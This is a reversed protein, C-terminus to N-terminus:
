NYQGYLQQLLQMLANQNTGQSQESDQPPPPPPPMRNEGDIGQSQESGEPPPPPPPPPMSNETDTEQQQQLLQMIAQPSLSLQDTGYGYQSQGYINSSDTGQNGSFLGQLMYQSNFGGLGQMGYSGYSGYNGYNNIM